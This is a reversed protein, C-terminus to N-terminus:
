WAACLPAASAPLASPPLSCRAAPWTSTPTRSSPSPTTAAWSWSARALARRSMWPSPRARRPAAPSRCSRCAVTTPWRTAPPPLPLPPTPPWTLPPSPSFPPFLPQQRINFYQKWGRGGMTEVCGVDGGGCVAAIVSGPVNNRELVEAMIKTLAISTFFPCRSLPAPSDRRPGTLATPM